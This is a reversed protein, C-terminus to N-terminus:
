KFRTITETIMIKLGDAYRKYAKRKFIFIGGKILYHPIYFIFIGFNFSVFPTM